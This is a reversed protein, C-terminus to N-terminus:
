PSVAVPPVQYSAADSADFVLVLAEAASSGPEDDLKRISIMTRATYYKTDIDWARTHADGALESGVLRSAVARKGVGEGGVVLISPVDM